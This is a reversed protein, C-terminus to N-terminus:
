TSVAPSVERMFLAMSELLHSLSRCGMFNIQFQDLGAARLRRFDEVVQDVSGQGLPREGPGAVGGVERLGVRVSMRTPPVDARGIQRCAQQLVSQRSGLEGLPMQMPQWIQAFEATRRLAGDSGGGIWIPPHPAQRPKPRARM